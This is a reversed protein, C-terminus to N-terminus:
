EQYQVSVVFFRQPSKIGLMSVTVGVPEVVTAVALALLFSAVIADCGPMQGIAQRDLLLAFPELHRTM